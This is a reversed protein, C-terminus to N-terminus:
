TIHYPELSQLLRLYMAVKFLIQDTYLAVGFGVPWGSRGSNAELRKRGGGARGAIQGPPRLSPSGGDLRTAWAGHGCGRTAERQGTGQQERQAEELGAASAAARLRLHRGRDHEARGRYREGSDALGPLEGSRHGILVSGRNGGRGEGPEGGVRRRRGHRRGAENGRDLASGGLDRRCGARSGRAGGHGHHLRRRLKLLHEAIALDRGGAFRHGEGERYLHVVGVADRDGAHRHGERGRCTGADDPGRAAHGAGVSAARGRERYEGRPRQLDGGCHGPRGEDGAESLGANRREGHLESEECGRGRRLHLRKEGRLLPPLREDDAVQGVDAEVRGGAGTPAGGM